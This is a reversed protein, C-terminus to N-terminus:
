LRVHHPSGTAIGLTPPASVTVGHGSDAAITDLRTRWWRVTAGPPRSTATEDALAVAVWYTLGRRWAVQCPRGRGPNPGAVLGLLEPHGLARPLREAAPLEQAPVIGPLGPGDVSTPVAVAHAIWWDAAQIVAGTVQEALSDARETGALRLLAGVVTGVRPDERPTDDIPGAAIREPDFLPAERHRVPVRLPRAQDVVEVMWRTATVPDTRREPDAQALRLAVLAAAMGAQPDRHRRQGAWEVMAAVKPHGLVVDRQRGQERTVTHARDGMDPYQLARWWQQYSWGPLVPATQPDLLSAVAEVLFAPPRPATSRM